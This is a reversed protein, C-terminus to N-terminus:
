FWDAGPDGPFFADPLSFYLSGISHNPYLVLLEDVVEQVTTAIGGATLTKTGKILGQANTLYAITEDILTSVDTSAGNHGLFIHAYDGYNTKIDTLGGIWSDLEDVGDKPTYERIYEHTDINVLDGVFLASVEPVYIYSNVETEANSIKDFHFEMGGLTIAGSVSTLTGSYLETFMSFGGTNTTLATAVDSQAYFPLDNFDAAAGYHDLHEHTIIVSTTKNIADIYARLDPGNAPTAGALDVVVVGTETELITSTFGGTFVIVHYRVTNETIVNVTGDTIISSAPATGFDVVPIMMDDDNCSTIFLASIALIGLLFFQRFNM